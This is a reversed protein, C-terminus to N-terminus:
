QTMRIALDYGEEVVDVTHDLLTVDLTVKPHLARFQGWVLALHLVRFSVPLIFIDETNNTECPAGM